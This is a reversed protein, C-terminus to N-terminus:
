KQTMLHLLQECSIHGDEDINAERILIDVEEKSLKDGMTMMMHKLEVTSIRGDGNHDFIGLAEKVEEPSERPLLDMCLVSQFLDFNVSPPSKIDAIINRLESNTSNIGLARLANGLEAIPIGGKQGYIAYCERAEALKAPSLRRPM